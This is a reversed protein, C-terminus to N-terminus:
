SGLLRELALQVNGHTATLAAIAAEEDYFGMDRLQRLQAAFREAPPQAPVGSAPAPAGIGGMGGMAAFQAQWDAPMAPPMMGPPLLGTEQLDAMAQQMRMMADITRPNTLARLTEPNSIMARLQPNSATMQQLMPNASMLQETLAPNSFVTQMMQQVAPNQMMTVPDFGGAGGM